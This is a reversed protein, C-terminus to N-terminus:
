RKKSDKRGTQDVDNATEMIGVIIVFAVMVIGTFMVVETQFDLMNSKRKEEQTNMKNMAEQKRAFNAGYHSRSWEDFDYIPTRGSANPVNSRKMRAKYFRTQPDEEKEEERYEAEDAERQAQAFQPGATHIIGKDYLKRLRFNGLVEYAQTIQRFKEAAVESNKNKDPHYLMSMKYYAQKIDSQTAGKSLGLSEYYNALLRPTTVIERIQQYFLRQCKRSLM